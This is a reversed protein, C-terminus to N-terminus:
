EIMLTSVSDGLLEVYWREGKWSIQAQEKDDNPNILVVVLKKGQVIAVGEIKKKLSHPYGSLGGGAGEKEENLAYMKCNETLYPAIHSFAKHQGSYELCGTVRNATVM